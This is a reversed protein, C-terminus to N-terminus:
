RLSDSLSLDGTSKILAAGQAKCDASERSYDERDFEQSIRLFPFKDDVFCFCPYAM